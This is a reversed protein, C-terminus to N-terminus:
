IILKNKKYILIGQKVMEVIAKELEQDIKKFHFCSKGKLCKKLPEFIKDFGEKHTYIPFFYLRV